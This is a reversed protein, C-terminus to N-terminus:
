NVVSALLSLRQFLAWIAESSLSADFDLTCLYLTQFVSISLWIICLSDIIAYYPLFAWLASTYSYFVCM